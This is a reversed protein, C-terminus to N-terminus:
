EWCAAYFLHTETRQVITFINSIWIAREYELYCMSYRWWFYACMHEQGISTAASRTSSSFPTADGVCIHVLLILIRLINMTQMKKRCHIVLNFLDEQHVRHDSLPCPNWMALWRALHLFGSVLWFWNRWTRSSFDVNVLGYPLISFALRLTSHVVARLMFVERYQTMFPWVDACICRLEFFFFVGSRLAASFSPAEVRWAASLRPPSPAAMVCQGHSEAQKVCSKDCSMMLIILSVCVRPAIIAFM